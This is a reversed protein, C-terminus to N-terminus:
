FPHLYLRLFLHVHFFLLQKQTLLEYIGNKARTYSELSPTASGLLLPCNYRKCRWLAIDIASYKPTNEQKYTEPTSIYFFTWVTIYWKNIMLLFITQLTM